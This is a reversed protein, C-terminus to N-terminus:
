RSKARLSRTRAHPVLNETPRPRCRPGRPLAELGGIDSDGLLHDPTEFATRLLSHIMKLHEEADCVVDLPTTERDVPIPDDKGGDGLDSPQPKDEERRRAVAYVRAAKLTPLKGRDRQEQFWVELEDPPVTALRQARFLRKKEIGSEELTKPGTGDLFRDLKGTHQNGPSAKALEIKALVVGLSREARICYCSAEFLHESSVNAERVMQKVSRALGTALKADPVTEVEALLQDLQRLAVAVQVKTSRREVLENPDGDRHQADLPVLGTSPQSEERRPKKKRRATKAHSNGAEQRGKRRRPRRTAWKGERERKPEQQFSCNETTKLPHAEMRLSIGRM